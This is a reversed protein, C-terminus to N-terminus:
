RTSQGISGVAVVVAGTANLIFSAGTLLHPPIPSGATDLEIAITWKISRFEPTAYIM